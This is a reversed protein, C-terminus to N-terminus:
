KKIKKENIKKQIADTAADGAKYLANEFVRILAWGLISIGVGALIGLIANVKLAILIGFLVGILIANPAYTRRM